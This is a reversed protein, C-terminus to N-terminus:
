RVGKLFGQQLLINKLLAINNTKASPSKISHTNLVFFYPHKNEEVYGIIWSNRKEIDIADIYSLKYNTNDEKLIMKRFSEQSKKQFPLKTFYLQKIFGLQEDATIKLSNNSWYMTSDASIIGKGYKLTDITKLMSTRGIKTILQSYYNVSDFSVLNTDSLNIYGKDLGVLAPVAFFTNLPAYSSDKYSSLNTITFQGSGNEMLAFSGTVNASDMIKVIAEDTKVNNPTCASYLLGLVIFFSFIKRMITEKFRFVFNGCLVMLFVGLKPPTNM